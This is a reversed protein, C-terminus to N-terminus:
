LSIDSLYNEKISNFTAQIAKGAGKTKPPGHGFYITKINRRTINELANIFNEEYTYRGNASDNVVPTDGVFLVADKQCHLCISDQSHGPIHIIEFYGDGLRLVQGDRLVHDVGELANFAYVEPNFAKRIVPLIGAHDFHGHTLIVQEIPKKGLGTSSQKIKDIISVDRGVDVLTNVDKIANWSGRVLYVNSTYVKSGKTLNTIKM